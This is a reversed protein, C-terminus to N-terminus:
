HLESTVRYMVESSSLIEDYRVNLLLVSDAVINIGKTNKDTYKGRKPGCIYIYIDVSEFIDARLM